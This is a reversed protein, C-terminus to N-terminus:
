LLIFYILLRSDYASVVWCGFWIRAFILAHEGQLLGTMNRNCLIFM